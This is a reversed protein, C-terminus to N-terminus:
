QGHDHLFDAPSLVKKYAPYHKINGTIIV